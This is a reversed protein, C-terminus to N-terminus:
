NPSKFVIPQKPASYLHIGALSKLNGHTLFTFVMYSKGELEGNHAVKHHEIQRHCLMEVFYMKTQPPVTVCYLFLFWLTHMSKRLVTPERWSVIFEFRRQHEQLHGSSSKPKGWKSFQKRLSGIQILIGRPGELM